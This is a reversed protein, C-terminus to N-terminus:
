EYDISRDARNADGILRKGRNIVAAREKEPVTVLRALFWFEGVVIALALPMMAYGGFDHFMKEWYEGKLITFAVATLALRVTNCFLAIPLSSVFVVLKEWWPREVLLVVLASIVFFATVMRLGNCAEAVAVSAQGIHIVNGDRTVAYGATELCFVASSTAWQQLPLSVASQVQNPWPLMLFLFLMIPSVKQFLKWGFLLLVLAAISLVVSLREASGYMFFLGFFRVAQAAVFAPLGWWCPRIQVGAIRRRRSWLVYVALFPVLIGSSYEDSRQWIHLLDKIGPWYSWSFAVLIFGAALWPLVARQHRLRNPLAREFGPLMRMKLLEVKDWMVKSLGALFSSLEGQLEIEVSEGTVVSNSPVCVHYDILCHQIECNEGVNSDDWLVSNVIVSNKGISVNRGIITPGFIVAGTEIHVNDLLVVRGYIKAQPEITAGSGKWIIRNDSHHCQKLNIDAQGANELYDGIADLYGQRDRFNGINQPLVANHVHKGARILESILGEKIDYYGQAPINELVSSSCIYINAADGRTEDKGPGPNFFVTLDSEQRRHDEILLGIDPPRMMAAPLVLILKHEQGNVADRISGATGVPLLEDRFVLQLESLSKIDLAEALLTSDGNSCITINKLGQKALHALLRKLASEGGAPWLAVPVRSSIAERGFDRMGALIVVAISHYDSM